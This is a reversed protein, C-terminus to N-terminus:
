QYGFENLYLLVSNVNLIATSDLQRHKANRLHASYHKSVDKGKCYVSKEKKTGNRESIYM